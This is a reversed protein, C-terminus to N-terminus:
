IIYKEAWKIDLDTLFVSFYFIFVTNMCSPHRHIEYGPECVLLIDGIREHNKYHFREPIDQRKYSRSHPIKSLNKM